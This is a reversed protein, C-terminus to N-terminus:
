DDHEGGQPHYFALDSHGALAKLCSACMQDDNFRTRIVSGSSRQLLRRGCATWSIIGAPIYLGEARIQHRGLEALPVDNFGAEAWFRLVHVTVRSSNSTAAFTLETLVNADLLDLTDALSPMTITSM